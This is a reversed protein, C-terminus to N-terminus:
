YAFFSFVSGSASSRFVSGASSSAEEGGGAQSTDLNTPFTGIDTRTVMFCTRGQFGMVYPVAADAAPAADIDAGAWAVYDEEHRRHALAALM